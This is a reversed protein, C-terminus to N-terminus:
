LQIKTIRSHCELNEGKSYCCYYFRMLHFLSWFCSSKTQDLWIKFNEGNIVPNISSYRQKAETETIKLAMALTNTIILAARPKTNKVRKKIKGAM